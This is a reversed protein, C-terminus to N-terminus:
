IWVPFGKLSSALWVLEPDEFRALRAIPAVTDLNEIVVVLDLCVHDLIATPRLVLPALAAMAVADELLVDLSGQENVLALEINADKGENHCM